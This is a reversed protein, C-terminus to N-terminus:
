LQCTWLAECPRTLGAGEELTGGGKQKPTKTGEAGKREEEGLKVPWNIVLSIGLLQFTMEKSFDIM